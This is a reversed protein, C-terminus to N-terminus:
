VVPSQPNFPNTRICLMYLYPYAQRIYNMYTLWQTILDTYARKADIRLHDSDTVPLDGFSPRLTLEELLHFVSQLLETIGEHELLNPNELLSLMFGRKGCLIDKLEAFSEPFFSLTYGLKEGKEAASAFDAATWHENIKLLLRRENFFQDLTGLKEALSNGLESFFIGIVPNQSKLREKKEREGIFRELIVSVLLVQVPIFALDMLLYFYIDYSNRFILYHVVYLVVASTILLIIVAPKFYSKRGSM